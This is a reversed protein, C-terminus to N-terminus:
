RLMLSLLHGQGEVLIRLLLRMLCSFITPPLKKRFRLNQPFIFLFAFFPFAGTGQFICRLGYNGFEVLGFGHPSIVLADPSQPAGSFGPQASTEEEVSDVAQSPGWTIPGIM